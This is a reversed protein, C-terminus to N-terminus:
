WVYEPVEECSIEEHDASKELAGLAKFTVLGTVNVRGVHEFREAMKIGVSDYLSTTLGGGASTVDTLESLTKTLDTVDEATVCTVEHVKNVIEPLACEMSKFDGALVAGSCDVTDIM